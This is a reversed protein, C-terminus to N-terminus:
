ENRLNSCPMHSCIYMEEQKEQSCLVSYNDFQVTCLDHSVDHPVYTSIAPFVTSRSVLMSYNYKMGNDKWIKHLRSQDHSRRTIFDCNM